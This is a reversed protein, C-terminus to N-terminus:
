GLFCSWGQVTCCCFIAHVKSGFFSTPRELTPGPWMGPDETFTLQWFQGTVVFGRRCCERLKRELARTDPCSGQGQRAGAPITYQNEGQVCNLARRSDCATGISTPHGRVRVKKVTDAPTVHNHTHLNGAM